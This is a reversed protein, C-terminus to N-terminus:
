SPNNQELLWRHYWLEVSCTLFGAKQYLRQAKVNRGQTVVEVPLLHKEEFWCLAAQVLKCGLGNGQAEAAVAFLGIQGRHEPTSHCSVYGAAQGRWEAVWVADAYGRCSKEIWTEYLEDCRQSPFHGDFYFRSDTHSTRAIARLAPIDEERALRLDGGDHRTIQRNRQPTELTIRLDVLRFGYDQALVVTRSDTADALFYLCDIQHDTCWFLAAQALDSTLRHPYLRAIRCGFFNSDWELYQCPVSQAM